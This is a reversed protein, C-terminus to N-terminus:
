HVHRAKDSTMPKIASFEHAIVLLAFVVGSVTFPVQWPTFATTELIRITRDFSASLLYYAAFSLARYEVWKGPKVFAIALPILLTPSLRVVLEPYHNIIFAFNWCTYSLIWVLTLHYHIQGNKELEHLRHWAKTCLPAILLLGTLANMWYGGLADYMVAESINLVLLISVGIYLHKKNLWYRSGLLTVGAFISYMKIWSFLPWQNMQVWWATLLLPLFLGAVLQLRPRNALLLSILLLVLAYLGFILFFSM